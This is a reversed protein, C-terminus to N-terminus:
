NFRGVFFRLVILFTPIDNLDFLFSAFFHKNQYKITKYALGTAQVCVDVVYLTSSTNCLTIMDHSSMKLGAHGLHRFVKPAM